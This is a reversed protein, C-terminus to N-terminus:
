KWLHWASLFAQITEQDFLVVRVLTIGSDGREFYDRVAAFIVGAAREKPFGFIGTSIAPLSISDLKLEDAAKLSGGIAAALKADEDGEGWVPGVVHIVYKAPLLGGSTWAPKAHSVPGRARIWADSEDQIAPGGRRVIAGAVGAGHQLHANAANVIAGTTEATLDGRVIQITRSTMLVREALVINVIPNYEGFLL